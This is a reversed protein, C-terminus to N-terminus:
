GEQKPIRKIASLSIRTEVGEVTQRTAGKWAHGYVVEYSLPYKGEQTRMLGYNHEFKSWSARGTLGHNRQPHINKVGQMKLSRVLQPLTKYHVSLFAMDVVPELFHEALLSDGLDHMDVFANVHAFANVGHWAQKLEKFTDPGLTTFMLCANTNMVRNLERFVLPMSSGWHIVQNAFVLDFLGDPFPMQLMDSNVLPWKRRFRQKKKAQLLMGHALDLGIITANPYKKKLQGSFFGSGCGLDLIYKPQIKLLSLREFLRQGIEQQILAAKDYEPAQKDFAKGIETTVTMM